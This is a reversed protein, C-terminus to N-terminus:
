YMKKETEEEILKAIEAIDYVKEAIKLGENEWIYEVVKQELASGSVSSL